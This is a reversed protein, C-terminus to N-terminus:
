MGGPIIELTEGASIDCKSLLEKNMLLHDIRPFYLDYSGGEELLGAETLELKIEKGTMNWPLELDYEDNDPKMVLNVSVVGDTSAVEEEVEAEVAVEEQVESIAAAAAAAQLGSIETELEVNNAELAIIKQELEAIQAEMESNDVEEPAVEAQNAVEKSAEELLAVKAVLENNQTILSEESKLIANYKEQIEDFASDSSEQDTSAKVANKLEKELEVIKKLADSNETALAENQKTLEEATNDASYVKLQNQAAQLEIEIASKAETIESIQDLLHSTTEDEVLATLQEKTSRLEAEMSNYRSDGDSKLSQLAEFELQLASHKEEMEEIATNSELEALKAKIEKNEAEQEQLKSELKEKAQNVAEIASDGSAQAKELSTKSAEMEVFKASLEELEKNAADLKKRYEDLNAKLATNSGGAETIKIEFDAKETELAALKENTEGIKNKQEESKTELQALSEQLTSIEKDKDSIITEFKTVREDISELDASQVSVKDELTNKEGVLVEYKDKWDVIVEQADILQSEFEQNQDIILDKQSVTDKLQNKESHLKKVQKELDAIYDVNRTIEQDKVEMLKEYQEESSGDLSDKLETIHNSLETVMSEYRAQDKKLTEVQTELDARVQKNERLDAQVHQLEGKAVTNMKLDDLEDSVMSHESTLDELNEKLEDIEEKRKLFEDELAAYNSKQQDLKGSLEQKEAAAEKETSDIKAYLAQNEEKLEAIRNEFLSTDVEPVAPAPPAPQALEREARPAPEHYQQEEVQERPMSNPSMANAISNPVPANSTRRQKIVIKPRAAPKDQPKDPTEEKKSFFKKIM